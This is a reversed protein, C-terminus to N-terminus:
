KIPSNISQATWETQAEMTNLFSKIGVMHLLVKSTSDATKIVFNGSFPKFSISTIQDWTFTSIKGKWSTIKIQDQNFWVQHRRALLFLYGGPIGFLVLLIIAGLLMGDEQLFLTAILFGIVILFGSIAPLYYFKHTKILYNGEDDIPEVPKSAAKTLYQISGGVVAGILAYVILNTIDM